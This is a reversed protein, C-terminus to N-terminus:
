VTEESVVQGDKLNIIRQCYHAINSDHTIMVMTIGQETHLSTLISIIEQGSHSDLNGTPEDALILPPNKVLARAIAVRQQEGGSLETPRHSARESLGVRDLAELAMRRDSGGAYRMGLEVNALASLRPLLNFTQFVFGIKRGRVQALEGNSFSSVERGELYYDGSTPKDLCGVLNLMTSKGSGSPGMIAVLEGSKIHLNVGQLVTLERKGMPYVKTIDQLRIM